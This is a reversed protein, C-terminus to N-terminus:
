MGLLMITVLVIITMNDHNVSIYYKTHYKICVCMTIPDLHLGMGNWEMGNWEM